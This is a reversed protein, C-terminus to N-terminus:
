KFVLFLFYILDHIKGEQLISSFMSVPVFHTLFECAILPVIQLYTVEMVNNVEPRGRAPTYKSLTLLLSM